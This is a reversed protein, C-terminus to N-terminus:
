HNGCRYYLYLFKTRWIKMKRCLMMTLVLVHSFELLSLWPWGWYAIWAVIWDVPWCLFCFSQGTQELVYMRTKMMMTSRPSPSIQSRLKLRRMMMRLYFWEADIGMMTLLLWWFVATWIKSITLLLVKLFCVKYGCVQKQKYAALTKDYETKKQAAKSVYPQKEQVLLVFILWIFM